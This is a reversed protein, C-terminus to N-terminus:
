AWLKALQRPVQLGTKKRSALALRGPEQASGSLAEQFREQGTGEWWLIWFSGESVELQM